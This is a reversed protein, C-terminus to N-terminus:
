RIGRFDLTLRAVILSVQLAILASLLALSQAFGIAGILNSAGYQHISAVVSPMISLQVGKRIRESHIIRNPNM